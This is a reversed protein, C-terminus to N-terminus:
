SKRRAKCEKCYSFFGDSTATRKNFYTSNRPLLRGCISCKKFVTRGMTIYEILRYHKEVQEVIPEVIRRTFITSIYNEKYSLNFKEEVAKAIDKNSM